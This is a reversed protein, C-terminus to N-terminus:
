VRMSAGAVGSSFARRARSAGSATLADARAPSGMVALSVRAGPLSAGMPPRFTTVALPQNAARGEPVSLM